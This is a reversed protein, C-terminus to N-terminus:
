HKSKISFDSFDFMEKNKSFNENIDQIKTEHMLSDTDNFLIRLNNGYKRKIYDYHFEYM